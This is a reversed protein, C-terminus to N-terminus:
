KHAMLFTLLQMRKWLCWFVRATRPLSSPMLTTTIPKLKAFRAVLEPIGCSLYPDDGASALYQGDPSFTITRVWDEHGEMVHLSAGTQADWIRVVHDDGASAILKGDPSIAVTRVYDTHGVLTHLLTSSNNDWVKVSGDDCGTVLMTQDNSLAIQRIWDDHAYFLSKEASTEADRYSIYGGYTGGILTNGDSSFIPSIMMDSYNDDRRWIMDGNNDLMLGVDNGDMVFAKDGNPSVALSLYSDVYATITLDPDADNFDWVALKGDSNQGLFKTGVPSTKM